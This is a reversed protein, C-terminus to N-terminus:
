QFEDDPHFLNALSTRIHLRKIGQFLGQLMAFQTNIVCEHYASSSPLVSKLLSTTSTDIRGTVDMAYPFTIAGSVDSASKYKRVKDDFRMHLRKSDHMICVDGLYMNPGKWLLFDPGGKERGPLSMDKPYIESNIGHRKFIKGLEYVVGEHRYHFQPKGCHACTMVHLYTSAPDLSSLQPPPAEEEHNKSTDNTCQYHIQHLRSLRVMCANRFIDDSLTRIQQNPWSTLWSLHFQLSNRKHLSPNEIQLSRRLQSDYWRCCWSYSPPTPSNAIVINVDKAISIAANRAMANLSPQADALPPLGFGGSQISCFTHALLESDVTGYTILEAFFSVFLSQIQVLIDSTTQDIASAQAFYSYNRAHHYLILWKIQATTPLGRLSSLFLQCKKIANSVLLPDTSDRSPILLGGHIECPKHLTRAHRIHPPLDDPSFADPCSMISLKPGNITLGIAAMSELFPAIQSFDRNRIILHCDDVISVTHGAFRSLTHYTAWRFFKGSSTCGQNTGSTIVLTKISKGDADFLTCDGSESYSWNIFQFANKYLFGRSRIYDLAPERFVSNFANCADFNLVIANQDLAEQLVANVAASGGAREFSSGTGILTPDEINKFLGHWVLKVLTDKIVLPRVKEDADDYSLPVLIGRRLLIQENQSLKEVNAIDTFIGSIIDQFMSPVDSLLLPALLEKTWGTLGSSKGRKLRSVAYRIDPFSIYSADRTDMLLPKPLPRQPFLLTLKEDLQPTFKAIHVPTNDLIKSFLGRQALTSARKQIYVNHADDTPTSTVHASQNTRSLIDQICQLFYAPESLLTLHTRVRRFDHRSKVNWTISSLLHPLLLFVKRRFSLTWEVKTMALVVINKWIPLLEAPLTKISRLRMSAIRLIADDVFCEIVESPITTPSIIGSNPPRSDLISNALEDAERNQLRPVWNLSIPVGLQKLATWQLNVQSWLQHNPLRCHKDYIM